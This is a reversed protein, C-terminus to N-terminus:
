LWSAQYSYSLQAPEKKPPSIERVEVEIKEDNKQWSCNFFQFLDHPKWSALFLCPAYYGLTKLQQEHVNSLLLRICVCYVVFRTAECMWEWSVLM